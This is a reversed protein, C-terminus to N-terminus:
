NSIIEKKTVNLQKKQTVITTKERAVNITQQIIKQSEIQYSNEFVM